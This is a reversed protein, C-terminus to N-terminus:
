SVLIFIAMLGTFFGIYGVVTNSLQVPRRQPNHEERGQAVAEKGIWFAVERGTWTARLLVLSLSILVLSAFWWFVSLWIVMM